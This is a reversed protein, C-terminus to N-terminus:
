SSQERKRLVSSSVILNVVAREIAKLRYDGGWGRREASSV